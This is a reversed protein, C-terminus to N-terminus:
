SRGEPGAPVSHTASREVRHQESHQGSQRGTQQESQRGYSSAPDLVALLFERVREACWAPATAPLLHGGEELWRIAPTDFADTTMAPPVIPDQGGALALLPLTDARLAARRDESRLLQLGRLLRGPDPIGAPSADGCRARFDRLLALPDGGLRAMMREVMRPAIGHPYDPGACFRAFGNVAVRAVCQQQLEHGLSLLFGLSHGILVVPGRPMPAAPAGFYGAEWAAQPWEALLERLPTWFSADYAWGHLFLLTPRSPTTLAVSM